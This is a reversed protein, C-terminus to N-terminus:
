YFDASILILVLPFHDPITLVLSSLTNISSVKRGRKQYYVQQAFVILIQCLRSTSSNWNKHMDQLLICYVMYIRICIIFCNIEYYIYIYIVRVNNINRLHDHFQILPQHTYAQNYNIPFRGILKISSIPRFYPEM